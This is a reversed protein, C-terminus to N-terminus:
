GCTLYSVFLTGQGSKLIKDNLATPTFDSLQDATGTSRSMWTMWALDVRVFELFCLQIVGALSGLCPIYAFIALFVFFRPVDSKQM